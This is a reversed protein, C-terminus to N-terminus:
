LKSLQHIDARDDKGGIDFFDRLVIAYFSGKPLDEPYYIAGFTPALQYKGTGMQDQTGTPWIMRAGVGYAFRDYQPSIFSVRTLIDGFGFEYDGNLNDRSSVDSSILPVEFRTSLKWGDELPFPKEVRFTMLSKDTDGTIQQFKYRIDFRTLPKTFDQGTNADEEQSFVVSSLSTILVILICTRIAKMMLIGQKSYANSLLLLAIMM